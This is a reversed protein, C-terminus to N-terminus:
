LRFSDQDFGFYRVANRYSIDQVLRGATEMDYPYEGSEMWQGVLGCLIRRFYDHRPYSIFSRSDTLMGVFNGLCGISALSTLQSRIGASHDNFWWAAGHQLLAGAEPDQFCGIVSDIQENDKPNLSYLITKPLKKEGSLADLFGILRASPSEEGICDFGTDAGLLRYMRSNNNRSCGYHIQMAWGLRHYQEGLFLLLYTQYAEAEEQSVAGGGLGKKLIEEAKNRSVPTYVMRELGHDSVRCGLEHFALMRKELAQELDSLNGIEMSAAKGLSDMYAAFSPKQIALAQDPRWAPLVRVPFRERKKPDSFEAKLKQHWLLSDAPDDTTCLLKVGSGAILGKASMEPESLRANCLEWVEGATRENLVGDYGFYQKLEMHSWCSLPNGLGRELVGAWKKFKEAEPADGTIFREEVGCARMFRWKYHDGGLWLEAISRFRKDEAIDRAELHCHYDLIPMGAAFSQYLIKATENTLLLDNKM